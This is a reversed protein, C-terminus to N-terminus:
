QVAEFHPLDDGYNIQRRNGGSNHSNFIVGEGGKEPGFLWIVWSKPFQKVALKRCSEDSDHGPLEHLVKGNGEQFHNLLQILM